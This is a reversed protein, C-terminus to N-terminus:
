IIDPNAEGIIVFVPIVTGVLALLKGHWEGSLM